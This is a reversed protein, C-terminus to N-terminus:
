WINQCTKPARYFGRMSVPKKTGIVNTKTIREKNFAQIDIDFLKIGRYNYLLNQLCFVICNELFIGSM